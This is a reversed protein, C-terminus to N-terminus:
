GRGRRRMLTTESYFLVSNILVSLIIILLITSYLTVNDFENYAYSIQYGLGSTSLIFESGVVGIFAYAIALKVGTFIYPVAYPLMILMDAEIPKLRLVTATKRLVNPVRDLGNLTNVIMAVVAYLYGIVMKPFDTLGFVVVFLPYFSWIPVAYYTGFVPELTRRLGPLRHLGAGLLFGSVIAAVGALAVASLTGRLDPVIRGSALMEYLGAVMQSPPIMTFLPIIGARSCLELLLVFGVVFALQLKLAPRM